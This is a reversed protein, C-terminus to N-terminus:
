GHKTMHSVTQPPLLWLQPGDAACPYSTISTRVLVQPGTPELPQCSIWLDPVAPGPSANLKSAVFLVFAFIYVFSKVAPHLLFYRVDCARLAIHSPDKMVWLTSKVPWFSTAYHLM